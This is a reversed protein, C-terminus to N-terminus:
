RACQLRWVAMCAFDFAFRAREESPNPAEVDAAEIRGAPGRYVMPTAAQFRALDSIDIDFRALKM